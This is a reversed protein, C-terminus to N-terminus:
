KLSEIQQLVQPIIDPIDESILGIGHIAACRSHIWVGACSAHFASMGQALLGTIIGALVDGSGATALYASAKPNIIVQGSQSAIITESGKYVVVANSAKAANIADQVRNGSVQFIRAFEGAHPTLVTMNHTHNLLESPNSQFSTISDADVVCPKKLKLLGITLRKTNESVGNGMGIAFSNVKPNLAFELLEAEDSYPRLMLSYLAPAYALTADKECAITVLGSGVRLASIATLKAAGSCSLGGGHILSHGRSYKCSEANPIRFDKIWISPSNEKIM